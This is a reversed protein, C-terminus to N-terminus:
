GERASNRSTTGARNRLWAKAGAWERQSQRLSLNMAEALETETLGGFYKLEVLQAWDPNEQKLAVLLDDLELMRMAEREEDPFEDSLDVRALSGGRKESLRRRAADCMVQRMIQAAVAFFHRRDNMGYKGREMIRIYAEGVLGSTDLTEGVYGRLNRHALRCLDSYVLRALIQAAAEDGNRTRGLLNAVADNDDAGGRNAANGSEEINM